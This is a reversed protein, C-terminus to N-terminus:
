RRASSSAAAVVGRDPVAHVPPDNDARRRTGHVSYGHCVKTGRRYWGPHNDELKGVVILKGLSFTSEPPISVIYVDCLYDYWYQYAIQTSKFFERDELAQNIDRAAINLKHLIWREALSEKGTRGGNKLQQYDEGIKSLFYKAAQYIKNCFRRYGHM